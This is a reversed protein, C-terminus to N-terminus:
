VNLPVSLPNNIAATTTFNSDGQDIRDIKLRLKYIIYLTSAQLFVGLFSVAAWYNKNAIDKIAIAINLLGQAALSVLAALSSRSSTSVKVLQYIVFSNVVYLTLAVSTYIWVYLSGGNFYLSIINALNIITFLYFWKLMAKVFKVIEEVSADDINQLLKIRKGCCSKLLCEWCCM